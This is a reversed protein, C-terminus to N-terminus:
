TAKNQLNKNQVILSGIPILSVTTQFYLEM